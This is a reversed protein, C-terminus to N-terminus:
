PRALSVGPPRHRAQPLRDARRPTDPKSAEDLVALAADWSARAATADGMAVQTDGMRVLTSAEENRHGIGRRLDLAQHYRIMAHEWRGIRHNIYGLSDLAAAEAVRDGAKRAIALAANCNELARFVHGLRVHCWGLSNLLRAKGARHGSQPYLDVAQQAHRLAERDDAQRELVDAIGQHTRALGASDDLEQYLDLARRLHEHAREYETLRGFATGLHRHAWAQGARCDLRRAAVLADNLTAALVHWRGQRALFDALAWAFQWSHAHLEGVRAERAINLVVSLETEFWTLAEEPGTFRHLWREPRCPRALSSGRTPEITIAAACATSLYHDFIRHEATRRDRGGDHAGGLEAAYARLLQHMTFRAPAHETLLHARCLEGLRPRVESVGVSALCAAAAVSIEPGPHVSLIRFLWRAEPSLASYSLSFAARLDAGPAVSGLLDLGTPFRELEAALADLDVHPVTQAHEAIAAVALPLGACLAV